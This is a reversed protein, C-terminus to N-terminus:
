APLVGESHLLNLGAELEDALLYTQFAQRVAEPLQANRPVLKNCHWTEFFAVAHLKPVYALPCWGTTTMRGLFVLEHECLPRAGEITWVPHDFPRFALQIPKSIRPCAIFMGCELEGMRQELSSIDVQAPVVYEIDLGDHFSM